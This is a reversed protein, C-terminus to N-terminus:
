PTIILVGKKGREAAIIYKISKGTFHKRLRKIFLQCHRKSLPITPDIPNEINLFNGNKDTKYTDYTLTLMMGCNDKMEMGARLAWLRSKKALM